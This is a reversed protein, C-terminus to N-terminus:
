DLDAVMVNLPWSVERAKADSWAARLAPAVAALPDTGRDRRYATVASWTGLYALLHDATWEASMREVFRRTHAFPWPLDAYGSEVWRREFPWWRGVIDHYLTDVIADVAPAVRCLGYTWAAIRGGPRLVRRAEAYFPEGAFWHLAQAVTLLDASADALPARAALAVVRRVAAGPPVRSLQAFSADSAVVAPFRAVLGAVAQGNGSACDWALERRALGACLTDFLTDPYHPRYREYDGATTSFHDAYAEAM